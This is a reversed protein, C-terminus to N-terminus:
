SVICSLKRYVFFLGFIFPCIGLIAIRMQQCNAATLTRCSFSRLTMQTPSLTCLKLWLHYVICVELHLSILDGRRSQLPHLITCSIHCSKELEINSEHVMKDGSVAPEACVWIATMSSTCSIRIILYASGYWCLVSRNEVMFARPISVLLEDRCVTLGRLWETSPRQAPWRWYGYTLVYPVAQVFM